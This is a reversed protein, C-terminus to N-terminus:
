FFILIREYLVVVTAILRETQTMEERSPCSAVRGAGPPPPNVIGPTWMDGALTISSIAITLVAAAFFQRITKM